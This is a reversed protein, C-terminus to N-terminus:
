LVSGIAEHTHNWDINVTREDLGWKGNQRSYVDHYRIVSVRVKGDKLHHALVYIEGTAADGSEAIDFRSNGIFHFTKDFQAQLEILKGVEEHGEAVFDMSPVVLRGDPHFASLMLERDLRDTGAANATCVAMLESEITSSM